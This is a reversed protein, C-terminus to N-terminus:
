HNKLTWQSNIKNLSSLKAYSGSMALLEHHKGQEIIQGNKLFLIEDCSSITSFRHTVIVVTKGKALMKLSSMIEIENEPDTSATPEDLLLIPANKLIARAIAIRQKQGGSLGVGREGLKTDYGNPLKLILEHMRVLKAVEVIEEMSASLKGMKINEAISASFLFTDQSVYSIMHRLTNLSMEKIDVGGITIQGDYNDWFRLLINVITSKGSGSEGVLACSRGDDVKFNLNKLTKVGDKQYSFNINKFEISFNKLKQASHKDMDEVEDLDQIQFIRQASNNASQITTQMLFWPYILESLSSSLLLIGVWSEVALIDDFFLWAGFWLLFTLVLLPNFLFQLLNGFSSIDRYWRSVFLSYSNLAEQYRSFSISDNDFTRVVPMAQIYEIISNNVIERSKGYQVILQINRQKFRSTLFYIIFLLIINLLALRWDFYLLILPVVFVTVIASPLLPTSDAVFGHLNKVDDYVIKSLAGTGIETTKGVSLRALKECLSMRLSYELEFAALHSVKTSYIRLLFSFSVLVTATIVLGWKPYSSVELSFVFFALSVVMVISCISSLVSMFFVKKIKSKVPSLILWISKTKM